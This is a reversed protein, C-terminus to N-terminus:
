NGEKVVDWTISAINDDDNYTDLLHEVVNQAFGAGDKVPEALKFTLRLSISQM